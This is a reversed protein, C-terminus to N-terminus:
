KATADISLRDGLSQPDESLRQWEAISLSNGDRSRISVSLSRATGGFFAAVAAGLEAADPTGGLAAVIGAEAVQSFTRRMAAPEKGQKVALQDFRQGIGGDEVDINIQDLTSLLLSAMQEVKNESFLSKTVNGLIADATISGIDVGGVSLRGIKITRLAEDWSATLEFSVDVDDFGLERFNKVSNDTSDTPLPFAVHSLTLSVEAPIGDVYNKATMDAAAVSAHIRTGPDNKDPLDIKFDSISWGELEPVLERQHAVLWNADITAPDAANLMAITKTFDISKLVLSGFSLNGDNFVIRLNEAAM